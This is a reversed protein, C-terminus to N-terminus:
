NEGSSSFHFIPQSVVSEPFPDVSINFDDIPSIVTLNRDYIFDNCGDVTLQFRYTGIVPFTYQWDNVDTSVTFGNITWNYIYGSANPSVMATFNVKETVPLTLNPRTSLAQSSSLDFSINVNLDIITVAMRIQRTKSSVAGYRNWSRLTINKWGPAGYASPELALTENMRYNVREFIKVSNIYVSDYIPSGQTVNRLIILPPGHCNFDKVSMKLGLIPIPLLDVTINSNVENFVNRCKVHLLLTPLLSDANVQLRYAKRSGTYIQENSALQKYTYSQTLGTSNSTVNCNMRDGTQFILFLYFPESSNLIRKNVDLTFNTMIEPTKQVEINTTFLLVDPLNLRNWCKLSINVFSDGTSTFVHSVYFTKNTVSVLTSVVNSPSVNISSNTSTENISVYCQVSTGNQIKYHFIISHNKFFYPVQEILNEKFTQNIQFSM